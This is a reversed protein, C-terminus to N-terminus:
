LSHVKSYRWGHDRCRKRLDGRRLPYYTRYDAQLSGQSTDYSIAYFGLTQINGRATGPLAPFLNADLWHAYEHLLTGVVEFDGASLTTVTNARLRCDNGYEPYYNIDCLPGPSLTDAMATKVVFYPLQQRYFNLFNEQTFPVLEAPLAKFTVALLRAFHERSPENPPVVRTLQGFLPFALGEQTDRAESEVL